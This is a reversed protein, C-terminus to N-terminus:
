RIAAAIQFLTGIVVLILGIWGLVDYWREARKAKEDEQEAVYAIAGGTRVRFPMGFLFLLIIGILSLALGSVNWWVSTM